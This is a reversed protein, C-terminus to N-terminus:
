NLGLFALPILKMGRHKRLLTSFRLCLSYLGAKHTKINDYILYERDVHAVKM